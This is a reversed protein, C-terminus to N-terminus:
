STQGPQKRLELKLVKRAPNSPLQSVFEVGKLVKFRALKKTCHAIVDQESPKQGEKLAIFAKPVELWKPDPIGVVAAEFVQPLSSRLL